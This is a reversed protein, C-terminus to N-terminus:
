IQLELFTNTKRKFFKMVLIQVTPLTMGLECNLKFWCNFNFSQCNLSTFAQM